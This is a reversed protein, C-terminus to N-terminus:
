TLIVLGSTFLINYFYYRVIPKVIILAISLALITIVLQLKGFSKSLIDFQRSPSAQTVSIDNGYAVIISTSELQTSPVCILNNLNNLNDNSIISNPDNPIRTLDDDLILDFQVNKNNKSQAKQLRLNKAMNPDLFSRPIEIIANNDNIIILDKLTIGHRTITPYMAKIRNPSYVYSHVLDPGNNFLERSHIVDFEPLRALNLIRNDVFINIVEDSESEYEYLRILEGSTVDIVSLSKKNSYISKTTILIANPNLYKELAQRNQDVQAISAIASNIREDLGIIIEDDPADFSWIVDSNIVNNEDDFKPKFGKVVKSSTQLAFYFNDSISRFNARVSKCSPYLHIELNKDIAAIARNNSTRCQIDLPIVKLPPGNLLPLYAVSGSGTLAPGGHADVEIAITTIQGTSEFVQVLALLHAPTNLNPESTTILHSVFTNPGFNRNWLISNENFTDIGILKGYQTGIVLIKRFGFIDRTLSSTSTVSRQGTFFRNGFNLFYNPLFKLNILHDYVRQLYSSSLNITPSQSLPLDVVSLATPRSLGDERIWKNKVGQYLQFTGSSTTFAIRAISNKGDPATAEAIFNIITGHKNIDFPFSYSNIFLNNLSLIEVNISRSNLSLSTLIIFSNNNKDISLSLFNQKDDFFKFKHVFEFNKDYIEFENNFNELGFYDKSSFDIISKFKLKRNFDIENNIILKFNENLHLLNGNFIYYEFKDDISYQMSSQGKLNFHKILKDSKLYFSDVDIALIEDFNDDNLRNLVIEDNLINVISIDNDTLLLYNLDNLFFKSDVLENSGLDIRNLEKYNLNDFLVLDDNDEGLLYIKNYDLFNLNNRIFVGGNSPNITSISNDNVSIISTKNLNRINNFYIKSNENFSLQFPKVFSLNILITTIILILSFKIM